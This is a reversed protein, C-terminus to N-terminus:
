ENEHGIDEAQEELERWASIPAQVDPHRNDRDSVHLPLTDLGVSKPPMDLVERTRFHRARHHEDAAQKEANLYNRFAHFKDRKRDSEISIDFATVNDYSCKVADQAM